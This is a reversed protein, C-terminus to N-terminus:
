RVAGAPQQYVDQLSEGHNLLVVTSTVYLELDRGDRIHELREIATPSLRWRAYENTIYPKGGGERPSFGIQSIVTEAQGLIIPSSAGQAHCTPLIMAAVGPAFGDARIKLEVELAPDANVAGRIDGLTIMLHGYYGTGTM